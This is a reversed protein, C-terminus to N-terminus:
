SPLRWSFARGGEIDTEDGTRSNGRHSSCARQGHYGIGPAASDSEEKYQKGSFGLIWHLSAQPLTRRNVIWTRKSERRYHQLM